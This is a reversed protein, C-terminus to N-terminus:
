SVVVRFEEPRLASVPRGLDERYIEIEHLRGQLVHLLVHITVGDADEIEAEVPVRREVHAPPANREPKLAPGGEVDLTSVRLGDLQVRLESCGPFDEELLRRLAASEAVSPDRYEHIERCVTRISMSKGTQSSSRRTESATMTM